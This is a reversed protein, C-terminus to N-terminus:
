SALHFTDQNSDAPIQLLLRILEPQRSTSTKQYISQLQKRVTDQKKDLMLAIDEISKGDALLSAIRCEAPTLDFAAMLLTADISPASHPHYFLLLMLPRLGFSGMVYQPILSTYFAYLKEAEPPAELGHLQLSTFVETAEKAVPDNAKINREITECDALFRTQAAPPMTLLNNNVSLLSTSALLRNAAENTHIIRGDTTTLIVPQNLKDVLAHGVLAQTSYTFNKVLLRAARHLHPVLRDTFALAEAPLPGQDPRSLYSFILTVEDDDILKIGSVYRMGLPILFDQYFLDKAVFDDDLLLHDHMWGLLPAALMFPMRPDIASYKQIYGLEGEDPLNAGDSYSLTGHKKDLALSYIGIQLADSLRQYFKTWPANHEVAEYLLTVLENYVAESTDM